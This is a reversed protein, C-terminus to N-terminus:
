RQGTESGLSACLTKSQAHVGQFAKASEPDVEDLFHEMAEAIHPLRDSNCGGIYSRCDSCRM